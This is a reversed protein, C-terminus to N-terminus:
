LEEELGARRYITTVSLRIDLSELDVEQGPGYNRYRWQEGQRRFVEVMQRETDILMYEQVSPCRQYYQFKRGRDYAETTPILVEVVLRPFKIIDNDPEFDRKDCTVGVDSYVYCTESLRVRMNCNFVFGPCKRVLNDLAVMVNMEIMSHGVTGGPRMMVHGDAYEYREIMSNRDFELYEEPTMYESM